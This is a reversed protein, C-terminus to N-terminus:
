SKSGNQIPQWNLTFFLPKWTRVLGGVDSSEWAYAISHRDCLSRLVCLAQGEEATEQCLHGYKALLAPGKAVNRVVFAHPPPPGDPGIRGWDVYPRVYLMLLFFFDALAERRHSGQVAFLDCDHECAEIQYVLDRKGASVEEITRLVVLGDSSSLLGWADIEEAWAPAFLMALGLATLAIGKRM